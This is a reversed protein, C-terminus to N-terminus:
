ASPGAQDPSTIQKGCHTCVPYDGTWNRPFVHGNLNCRTESSSGRSNPILAGFIGAIAGFIGGFFKALGGVAGGDKQTTTKLAKIEHHTIREPRRPVASGPPLGRKEHVMNILDDPNVNENQGSNPENNGPQMNM